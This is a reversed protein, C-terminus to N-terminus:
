RIEPKIVLNVLIENLQGNGPPRRICGGRSRRRHGCGVAPQHESDPTGHAARDTGVAQVPLPGTLGGPRTLGGAPDAGVGFAKGVFFGVPGGAVFVIVLFGFGGGVVTWGVL